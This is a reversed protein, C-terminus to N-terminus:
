DHAAEALGDLADTVREESGPLLHGYRDLVTVVSSHGARAAIEKPSAGAASGCRWRPTGCITHAYRRSARPPCLGMGGRLRTIMRVDAQSHREARPTRHARSCWGRVASLPHHVEPRRLTDM